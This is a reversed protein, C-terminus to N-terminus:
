NDNLQQLSKCAKHFDDYSVNFANKYSLYSGYKESSKFGVAGTWFNSANLEFRQGGSSTLFRFLESGKLLPGNTVNLYQMTLVNNIWAGKYARTRLNLTDQTDDGLDTLDSWDFDRDIASFGGRDTLQPIDFGDLEDDPKTAYDMTLNTNVCQTEPILFLIDESWTYGYPETRIPLSHNRVGIGGDVSDVILGEVLEVKKDLALLSLHRYSGVLYETGNEIRGAKDRKITYTRWQIDFATSVSKDFKKQGSSFIEYVTRPIRLDNALWQTYNSTSVNMPLTGPCAWFPYGNCERYFGTNSRPVTGLGISSSDAAYTFETSMTHKSPAVIQHLGLPTVVGVIALALKISWPLWSVVNVPKTVGKSSRSETRLITPWYSAQLIISIRSRSKKDSM